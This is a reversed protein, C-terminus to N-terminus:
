SRVAHCNKESCAPFYTCASKMPSICDDAILDFDLPEGANNLAGCGLVEPACKSLLFPRQLNEVSATTWPTNKPFGMVFNGSPIGVCGGGRAIIEHNRCEPM